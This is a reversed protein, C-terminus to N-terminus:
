LTMVWKTRRDCHPGVSLPTNVQSVTRLTETPTAERNGAQCDAELTKCTVKGALKVRGRETAEVSWRM